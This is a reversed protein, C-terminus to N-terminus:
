YYALNGLNPIKIKNNMIAKFRTLEAENTRIVLLDDACLFIIIQDYESFRECVSWLETHM